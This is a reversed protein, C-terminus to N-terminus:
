MIPIPFLFTTVRTYSLGYLEFIPRSITILRIGPVPTKFQTIWYKFRVIDSFQTIWCKFRVVDSQIQTEVCLGFPDFVLSISSIISRPLLFIQLRKSCILYPRYLTSRLLSVWKQTQFSKNHVVISYCVRQHCAFISPVLWIKTPVSMIKHMFKLREERRNGRIQVRIQDKTIQRNHHLIEVIFISAIVVHFLSKLSKVSNFEQSEKM